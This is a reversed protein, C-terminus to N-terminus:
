PRVLSDGVLELSGGFAGPDATAHCRGCCKELACRLEGGIRAAPAATGQGRGTAGDVGTRGLAGVVIGRAQAAVPHIRVHQTEEARGQRGMNSYQSNLFSHARPTVMRLPYGLVEPEEIYDPLPDIATVGQFETYGERFV